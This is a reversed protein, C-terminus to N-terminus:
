APPMLPRGLLRDVAAGIDRSAMLHEGVLMAQVGAQELRQVDTRDHVGSEAVLVKERPVLRRMRVTHELDTHFTKLNRNNVGILRAGAALVNPLNAAEYFEVLATMGLQASEAHLRRLEDATLCEAILLVADAGAVRAELLQYEDLLFDKRLVPVEVAGRIDTLYELHGQFYTADTLVSICSAGHQQYIQAIEVPEFDERIIGQSPSAKKVEAILRIPGAAALPQLFDRLPPAHSLASLLAAAPRRRKARDIEERKTAVIKELISSM